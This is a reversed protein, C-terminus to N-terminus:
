MGIMSDLNRHCETSNHIGRAKLLKVIATATGPGCNQSARSSPDLERSARRISVVGVWGASSSSTELEHPGQPQARPESVYGHCAAVQITLGGGADPAAGPLRSPAKLALPALIATDLDTIEASRIRTEETQFKTAHSGPTPTLQYSTCSILAHASTV